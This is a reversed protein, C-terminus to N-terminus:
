QGNMDDLAEQDRAKKDKYGQHAFVLAAFEAEDTPIVEVGAAILKPEWEKKLRDFCLNYKELLPCEICKDQAYQMRRIMDEYFVDSSVDNKIVNRQTESLMSDVNEQTFAM